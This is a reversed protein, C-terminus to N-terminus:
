AIAQLVCPFCQWHPCLYLVNDIGNAIAMPSVPLSCQRCHYLVNGNASTVSTSLMAVHTVSQVAIGGGASM